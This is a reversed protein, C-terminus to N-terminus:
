FNHNLQKVMRLVEFSFNRRGEEKKRRYFKHMKAKELWDRDTMGAFAPIWSIIQMSQIGAKAPIVGFM